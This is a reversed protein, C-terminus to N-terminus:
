RKPQAPHPPAISKKIKDSPRPSLSFNIPLTYAVSVAVGKEKGPKYNPMSQVIRLAEADLLPHVGRIVKADVIKGERNVTYTVYVKGQIGKAKAEKPYQVNDSIFHGLAKGGGPFEPYVDVKTYVKEKSQTTTDKAIPKEQNMIAQNAHSELPVNEGTKGFAMLLLALLPLFTAVKWLGAKSTKQKNMM